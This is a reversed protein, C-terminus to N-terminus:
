NGYIEIKAIRAYFLEAYFLYIITDHHYYPKKSVENILM